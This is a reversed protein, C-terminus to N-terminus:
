TATQGSGALTLFLNSALLRDSFNPPAYVVFRGLRLLVL